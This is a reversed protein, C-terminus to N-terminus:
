SLWGKVKEILAPQDGPATGPQVNLVTVGSEKYAEIREKVYGEPGVLNTAELLEDPIM